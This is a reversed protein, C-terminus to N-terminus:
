KSRNGYIGTLVENKYVELHPLDPHEDAIKVALKNDYPISLIKFTIPAPEKGGLEGEILLAHARATEM